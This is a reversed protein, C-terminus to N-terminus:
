RQSRLELKVNNHMRSVFNLSDDLGMFCFRMVSVDRNFDHVGLALHTTNKRQGNM